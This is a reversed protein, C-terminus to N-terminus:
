EGVMVFAGWFYPDPYKAKLEKQAALFASRLGGEKSKVGGEPKLPSLWNKYFRVMLEQTAEDDVKWLSMIISRAGAVKFARQLGYVGEGNKVVGLGTECASLTVLDTNDLNLNMAEYATLIGDEGSESRAGNLTSGAGTLMLGSRLLPNTGKITDSQFFGHTAVHLIRPKYSEKLTEEMAAPGTHSKVEWGLGDLISAIKDVETKTAPLEALPGISELRLGYNMSPSITESSSKKALSDKNQYYSPFGLLEALKNDEEAPVPNVIDKTVTVLRIDKEELLYKKTSPNQLTNLNLNHFVGDPSFFIRKTAPLHSAIKGWFQQYSQLDPIQNSIAKKYYTLLKGELENGNKLLVMEPYLSEPKVILAAYYITDTLGKIKYVPKKPNSTDTVIRSIGFKKLRIMEIAAEGPKLAKQVEKWTVRKKDSLRAFNESRLSLEEEMKETKAYVSDLGAREKPDSAILLKNLKNQNSEWETFLAFLKKDGSTKIRHKWKASSNLLLGKMLLQDNYLDVTIEKKEPHRQVLFSKFIEQNGSLNNEFFREKENDSLSPFYSQVQAHKKSNWDQFREMAKNTKKNSLYLIGLNHLSTAVDPHYENLKKKRIELAELQHREAKAFDGMLWYLIGLNHLSGAVEPHQDGLAKKHITLAQLYFKEAKAYAGLDMYLKGLSNMMIGLDPHDEGLSKRTIELSQILYPEAQSYMKMEVYLLGLNTLPAALEPHTEGMSKRKIEVAKLHYPLAKQYNGMLNYLSGLNNIVASVAPHIEGLSKRWSELAKEYYSVAKLYNGQKHYLTGLSNLSQGIDTHNEKLTKKRIEYAQLYYPETKQYNGTVNYFNGLTNLATAYEASNEGFVKKRVELSKLLVPEAKDFNGSRAWAIGLTNLVEAYQSSEEGNEKKINEAWLEAFPIAKGFQGGKSYKDVSDKLPNSAPPKPAPNQAWGWQVLSILAFFLGTIRSMSIQNFSHLIFLIKPFHNHLIDPYLVKM